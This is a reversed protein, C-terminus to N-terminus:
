KADGALLQRLTLIRDIMALRLMRLDTNWGDRQELWILQRRAERRLEEDKSDLCETATRKLLTAYRVDDFAARIGDWAITYIAGGYQPFAIEVCRYNGDGGPDPAFENFPVRGLKFGHQMNGDYHAGKYREFGLRRRHLAPNEPAAFPQAYAILSGGVSHWQDALSRDVSTDSQLEQLAGAFSINKRGGM